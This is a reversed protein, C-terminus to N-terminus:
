RQEIIYGGNSSTIWLHHEPHLWALISSKHPVVLFVSDAVRQLEDFATRADEVTPLHELVHSVYAAGFYKAPYPISRVDAVDYAPAGPVNPSIDITVDGPPHTFNFKAAGVVLLPKGLCDAYERAEDFVQRREEIESVQQIGEWIIIAIIM